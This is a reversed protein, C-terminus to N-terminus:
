KTNNQDPSLNPVASLARRVAAESVGLARGIQAFSRKQVRLERAIELRDETMVRPRGPKRGAAIAADMGVRTRMGALSHRVRDLADLVDGPAVLQDPTTSLASEALSRVSVGRTRLQTVTTIFHELSPSLTLASPIVLTDGSQLSAICVDLEGQTRAGGGRREIHVKSAGARRLAKTDEAADGAMLLERAYGITRSM